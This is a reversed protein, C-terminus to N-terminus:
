YNTQVLYWYLTPVYNKLNKSDDNEAILIDKPVLNTAHFNMM